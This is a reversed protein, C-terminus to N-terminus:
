IQVLQSYLVTAMFGLSVSMLTDWGGHMVGSSTPINSKSSPQPRTAGSGTAPQPAIAPSYAQNNEVNVQLKM